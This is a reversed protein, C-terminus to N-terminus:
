NDVLKRGCHPCFITDIQTHEIHNRSVHMVQTYFGANYRNRDCYKCGLELGGNIM